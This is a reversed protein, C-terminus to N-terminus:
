EDDKDTKLVRRAKIVLYVITAVAVGVQALPLVSDFFDHLLVCIDTVWKGGKSIGELSINALLWKILTNENEM